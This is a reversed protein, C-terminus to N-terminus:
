ALGDFISNNENYADDDEVLALSQVTTDDHGGTGGGKEMDALGRCNKLKRVLDQSYRGVAGTGAGIITTCMKDLSRGDALKRTNCNSTVRRFDKQLNRSKGSLEDHLEKPIHRRRHTDSGGAVCWNVPVTRALTQARKFGGATPLALYQQMLPSIDNVDSRERRQRPVIFKSKTPPPRLSLRSVPNVFKAHVPNVATTSSARSLYESKVISPETVASSSASLGLAQKSTDAFERNQNEGEGEDDDEDMLPGKRSASSGPRGPSSFESPSDTHSSADGRKNMHTLPIMMPIMDDHKEEGDLNLDDQEEEPFLKAWAVRVSVPCLQVGHMVQVVQMLITKRFGKSYMHRSGPCLFYFTYYVANSIIYPLYHFVFDKNNEGHAKKSLLEVIKVYEASLKKLLFSEANEEKDNLFFKVKVLWFM